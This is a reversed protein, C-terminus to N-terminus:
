RRALAQQIRLYEAINELDVIGALRGARTVLVLRTQSSQLPELLTSLPTAVEATRAPLMVRGVHGSPGYESLGRLIAPQTLVGAIREGDLVPFDKQTGSLTLEVARSLPDSPALVAFATIMARGATQHSLRTDAEVASAEAGAGIWVFVAILVLFPNGLLGLLGLGVALTQGVRAAANTARVRDMRLALLARLVRGGDMPFAPLLNFLVLMINAGLLTRLVGSADFHLAFSAEPRGTALLLLYLVAAIAVNVAPGALAVVIEQRPDRPMSELQAVGGIPLLTIHRTGIGYRRATLAHGYEHLVVCLFLLLVLLLGSAVGAASGTEIWSVLAIWALLLLFTAHVYVDIGAFRGLNLSWPVPPTEQPLPGRRHRSGARPEM